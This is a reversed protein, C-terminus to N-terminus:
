NGKGIRRHVIADTMTAMRKMQLVDHVRVIQCGQAIGLATTAGTGELAEGPTVGITRQIFTKRSTGLLVPFGLGVVDSLRGMMELNQDQDKAFGIGPDLWIRDDPVGAARALGVSEMLDDLVDPVFDRYDRNDRNHTLIVPCGYEASVAALEPDRKFGWVDNVIDAGAELAQRATEAKYTDISIPLRVHERVARIVPLIRRLEEEVPVPDHGPRTSEGGIDIIDAGDAAMQKAREVAAAVEDYRGGDSFSDPTANLIGMILTRGGLELRMGDRLAYSREYITPKM